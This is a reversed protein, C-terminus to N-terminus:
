PMLVPGRWPDFTTLRAATRDPRVTVRAHRNLMAATVSFSSNSVALVDARSLVHHDPLFEAGPTDVGLDVASMPEYAAFRALLGPADTAIYLRPRDLTPWIEALWALYWDEPAIWFRGAGFDGRRLHLAVLDGGAGRVRAEAGDLVGALESVPTFLTRFRERHPGLANTPGCFYGVLDRGLIGGADGGRLAAAVDVEAEDVIPPRDALLPDDLGWLFRGIWDPTELDVDNLDAIIRATGYQLIQNGFRGADGLRSLAIGRRGERAGRPPPAVLPFGRLLLLARRTFGAGWGPAIEIVRDYAALAGERDGAAERAEGLACIARFDDPVLRVARRAADIADATGTGSHAGALGNWAAISAPDAVVALKVAVVARERREVVSWAAALDLAAGPATPNLRTAIRAVAVADRPRVAVLLPVLARAAAVDAPDISLAARLEAAAEDTPGLAALAASRARRAEAMEPALRIAEGLAAEAEAYRGSARLMQGLNFWRVASTAALVALRRAPGIAAEGGSGALVLWAEGMAPDLLVIRRAAIARDRGLAGLAHFHNLAIDPRCPACRVAEEFRSAADETRGLAAAAVGALHHADALDPAVALVRACLVEAAEIRGADLHDAVMGLAEAVSAM